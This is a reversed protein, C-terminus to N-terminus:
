YEDPEFNPNGRSRMAQHTLLMDLYVEDPPFWRRPPAAVPGSESPEHSMYKRWNASHAEEEDIQPSPKLM